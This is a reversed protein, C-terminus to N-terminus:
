YWPQSESNMVKYIDKTVVYKSMNGKHIFYNHYFPEHMSALGAKFLQKRLSLTIVMHLIMVFFSCEKTQKAMILKIVM